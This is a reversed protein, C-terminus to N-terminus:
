YSKIKAMGIKVKEQNIASQPSARNPCFYGDLSSTQHQPDDSAVKLLIGEVSIM